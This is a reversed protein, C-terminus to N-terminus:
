HGSYVALERRRLILSAALYIVATAGSIAGVGGAVSKWPLLTGEVLRATPRLDAYVKFISSVGVAIARIVVAYWIVHDHEDVSQYNELAETLFSASEACFFTGFAVLCAVPFSLFTAAWIAMMSLFALKVWLVLMVRLFNMRFGSAVYSMELGGPPFTITNPNVQGTYPDGNGIQVTIQGNADVASPFLQLSHFYGLGCQQVVPRDGSFAMAVHYIQDPANSGSNIRYRFTLPLKKDSAEALHSFVYLEDAGPAISRYSQQWAEWLDKRIKNVVDPTPRFNQNAKMEEEVRAQVNKEFEEMRVDPPDCEVSVRATLVQTELIRRDESLQGGQIEYAEREGAAPLSRLYETFQFVAAGCVSLLVANLTVVGLWKGLVYQWAAVPKTMTQWITKDRQDFSVTSASFALTLIAIVWYAGGTGYQLFVQVRYRLFEAPDLWGPLSALGLILLVILIVSIKLRVAEALVTRAIAFVPGPAALAVQAVRLLVAFALTLAYVGYVLTTYQRLSPVLMVPVLVVAAVLGIGLYTLLVGLWIVALAFGMGITLGIAVGTPDTRARAISRVIAESEEVATQAIPAASPPAVVGKGPETGGSPAPAAVAPAGVAPAETGTARQKSVVISYSIGLVLCLVVVVCSAIVKFTRSNQLRDLQGLRERITM